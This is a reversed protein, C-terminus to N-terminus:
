IEVREPCAALQDEKSLINGNKNCRWEGTELPESFRCTRCNVASPAGQLCVSIMDCYRCEFWGPSANPIKDPPLKTLVITRGRHIFEDAHFTDLNIIEFHLEDNDKNVAGYLAYCIGMKRMYTQMQTYHEPKAIKVGSKILKAFSKSSHTKWETVAPQGAPVDPCGLIVGDGSGGFHGGLESIRFQKGDKDQQVIQFGTAVMLAIFRAEELHGRNFLRLIRAQFKPRLYWRFGYWIKRACLGGILSAGLHSRFGEDAGRYADDMHPIVRGLMQRYAAGQDRELMDNVMQLTKSALQVAM